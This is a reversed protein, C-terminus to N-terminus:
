RVLSRGCSPIRETAWPLEVGDRTTLVRQHGCGVTFCAFIIDLEVVLAGEVIYIAKSGGPLRFKTWTKEEKKEFSLSGRYLTSTHPFHISALSTPVNM